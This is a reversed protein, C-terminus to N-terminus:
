RPLNQKREQNESLNWRIGELKGMFIIQEHEHIIVTGIKCSKAPETGALMPCPRPFFSASSCVPSCPWSEQRGQRVVRRGVVPNSGWSGLPSSELENNTSKQPSVVKYQRSVGLALENSLTYVTYVDHKPPKM